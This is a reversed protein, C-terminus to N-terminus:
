IHRVFWWLQQQELIGSKGYYKILRKSQHRSKFFLKEAEVTLLRCQYFDTRCLHQCFPFPAFFHRQLFMVSGNSFRLM